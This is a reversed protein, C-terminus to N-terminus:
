PFTVQYVEVGSAPLDRLPKMTYAFSRESLRYREPVDAQDGIPKFHVTGTEDALAAAPFSCTVLALLVPRMRPGRVPAMGVAKRPCSLGVHGRSATPMAGPM